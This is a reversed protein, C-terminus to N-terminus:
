LTFLCYSLYIVLFIDLSIGRGKYKNMCSPSTSMFVFTLISCLKEYRYYGSYIIICIVHYGGEPTKVYTITVYTCLEIVVFTCIFISL